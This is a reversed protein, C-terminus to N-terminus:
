DLSHWYVNHDAAHKYSFYREFILPMDFLLDNVYKVIHTMFTPQFRLAIRERVEKKILSSDIGNRGSYLKGMFKSLWDPVKSRIYNLPKYVLSNLVIVAMSTFEFLECVVRLWYKVEQERSRKFHLWQHPLLFMDSSRYLINAYNPNVAHLVALFSSLQDPNVRSHKGSGKDRPHRLFPGTDIHRAKTGSSVRGRWVPMLQENKLLSPLLLFGMHHMSDGFADTYHRNDSQPHYHIFHSDDIWNEFDNLHKM